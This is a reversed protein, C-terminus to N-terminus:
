CEDHNAGLAADLARLEERLHPMDSGDECLAELTADAAMAVRVLAAVVEPSCTDMYRKESGRKGQRYDEVFALLEPLTM